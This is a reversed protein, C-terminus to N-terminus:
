TSVEEQAGRPSRCRWARSHEATIIALVVEVCRNVDDNIVLYDYVAVGQRIEHPAEKLRAEISTEAETGRARLRSSLSELSPPLLFVSVTGPVTAMVQMGGQVDIDLLPIKGQAYAHEIEARPTGYYHDYVRAWELLLGEDMLRTFEERSVFHYHVGDVESGRPMRTTASISVCFLDPRTELLRNVVTTKGTGSAASIVVPFPAPDNLM